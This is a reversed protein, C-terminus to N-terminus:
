KRAQAPKPFAEIRVKHEWSIRAPVNVLRGTEPFNGFLLDAAVYRAIEAGKMTVVEVRLRVAFDKGSNDRGGVTRATGVRRCLATEAAHALPRIDPFISIATEFQMLTLFDALLPDIEHM